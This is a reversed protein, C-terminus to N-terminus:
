PGAFWFFSFLALHMIVLLVLRTCVVAVTTRTMGALIGFIKAQLLCSSCLQPADFGGYGAKPVFQRQRCSRPTALAVLVVPVRVRRCSLSTSSSSSARRSWVSPFVTRLPVDRPFDASCALCQRQRRRGRLPYSSTRPTRRKRRKKRKRKSSAGGSDLRQELERRAKATLQHLFQMGSEKAEKAKKVEEERKSREEEQERRDLLARAVLFKLAAHDLADNAALPPVLSSHGPAALSQTWGVM